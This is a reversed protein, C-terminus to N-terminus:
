RRKAGYTVSTNPEDCFVHAEGNWKEIARGCLDLLTQAESDEPYEPVPEWIQWVGNWAPQDPRDIVWTPLTDGNGHRYTGRAVRFGRQAMLDALTQAVSDFPRVTSESSDEGATSDANIKM